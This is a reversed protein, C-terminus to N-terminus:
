GSYPLIHNSLLMEAFLATLVLILLGVTGVTIPVRQKHSRYGVALAFLSIPLIFLLIFQHFWFDHLAYGHQITIALLPMLSAVLPLAVCHIACIGSLTIAFRDFYIQVM